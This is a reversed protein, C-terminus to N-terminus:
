GSRTPVDAYATAGGTVANSSRTVRDHAYGTASSVAAPAYATAPAMRWRGFRPLSSAGGDSRCARATGRMFPRARADVGIELQGRMSPRVMDDLVNRAVCLGDCRGSPLNGRMGPRARGTNACTPSTSSTLAPRGTRTRPFRMGAYFTAAERAYGTAALGANGCTLAWM